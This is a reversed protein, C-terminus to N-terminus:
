RRRRLTGEARSGSKMWRASSISWVGCPAAPLPRRRPRLACDSAGRIPKDRTGKTAQTQGLACALGDQSMDLMSRLFRVEQGTICGRTSLHIRWGIWGIMVVVFEDGPHVIVTVV